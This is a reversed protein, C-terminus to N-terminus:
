ETGGYNAPPDETVKSVDTNKRVRVYWDVEFSYPLITWNAVPNQGMRVSRGFLGKIWSLLNYIM